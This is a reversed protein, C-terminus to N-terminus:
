EADSARDRASPNESWRTESPRPRCIEGRIMGIGRRAFIDLRIPVLLLHCFSGDGFDARQRAAVGPRRDIHQDADHSALIRRRGRADRGGVRDEIAAPALGHLRQSFPSSPARSSIWRISRTMTWGSFGSLSPRQAAARLGRAVLAREAPRPEPLDCKKPSSRTSVQWASRPVSATQMRSACRVSACDDLRSISLLIAASPRPVAELHEAVLDFRGAVAEDDEAAHLIVRGIRDFRQFPKADGPDVLRLTQARAAQAAAGSWGRPVSRITPM